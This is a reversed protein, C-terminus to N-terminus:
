SPWYLTSLTNYAGESPLMSPSPCSRGAVMVLSTGSSSAVILINEQTHTHLPTGLVHQVYLM